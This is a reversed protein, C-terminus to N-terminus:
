RSHWSTVTSGARMATVEPADQASSSAMAAVVSGPSSTIMASGDYGHLRSSTALKPPRTTATGALAAVRKWSETAATVPAHPACVRATIIAEGDFGVLVEIGNSSSVAM